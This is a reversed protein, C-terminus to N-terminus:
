PLLGKTNWLAQSVEGRTMVQWPSWGPGFGQLGATLGNFEAWRMNQTHEGTDFAPISGTYGAPPTNLVGPHLSNMARVIMTMVQARGISTYARFSGDAYGKIINASTAAAVYEHPELSAPNNPGLDNFPAVMGEVVAIAMAGDIMKAFQWRWVDNDPRFQKGGPVDYGNIVGAKAM